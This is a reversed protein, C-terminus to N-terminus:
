QLYCKIGTICQQHIKTIIHTLTYITRLYQVGVPNFLNVIWILWTNFYNLPYKFLILTYHLPNVGHDEGGFNGQHHTQICQRSEKTRDQACPGNSSPGEDTVLQARYFDGSASFFILETLSM